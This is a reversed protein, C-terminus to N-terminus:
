ILEVNGVAPPEARMSGRSRGRVECRAGRSRQRAAVFAASPPPISPAVPLSMPEHADLAERETLAGENDAIKDVTGFTWVAMCSLAVTPLLWCLAASCSSVSSPENASVLAGPLVYLVLTLCIFVSSTITGCLLYVLGRRRLCERVGFPQAERCDGHEAEMEPRTPQGVASSLADVGVLWMALACCLPMVLFALDAHWAAFALQLRWPLAAASSSVAGVYGITPVWLCAVMTTYPLTARQCLLRARVNAFLHDRIHENFADIGSRGQTGSKAYMREVSRNIVQRDSEVSVAAQRLDFARLQESLVRLDDTYLDALLAAGAFLVVEAAFQALIFGVLGPLYPWLLLFTLYGNFLLLHTSPVVVGLLLPSVVVAADPRYASFSALEYLCRCM